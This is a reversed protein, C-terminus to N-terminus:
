PRTTKGRKKELAPFEENIFKRVAREDREVARVAPKQVSLGLRRVLRSLHSDHYDVGFKRQILVKIMPLTWLERDFGSASPSALIMKKLAAWHEGGLKLPRGSKPVSKLSKKGGERALKGWYYVTNIAVGLDAAVVAAPVGQRLRKVAEM